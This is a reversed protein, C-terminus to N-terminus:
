TTKAIEINSEKLQKPLKYKFLTFIVKKKWSKKPIKLIPCKKQGNKL